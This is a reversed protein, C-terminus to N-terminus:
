AGRFIPTTVRIEYHLSPNPLLHCLHVTSAASDCVLIDWEVSAPSYIPAQLPLVSPSAQSHPHGCNAPAPSPSVIDQVSALVVHGYHPCALKRLQPM